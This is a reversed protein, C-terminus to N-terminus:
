PWYQDFWNRWEQPGWGAWPAGSEVKFIVMNVQPLVRQLEQQVTLVTEIDQVFSLLWVDNSHHWWAARNPPYLSKVALVQNLTSNPIIVIFKTM